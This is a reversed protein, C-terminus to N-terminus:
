HLENIRELAIEINNKYSNKGKTKDGKEEFACLLISIKNGNFTFLIRINKPLKFKMSYINDADKLSEFWDKKLVCNRGTDELHRLRQRFQSSFKNELGSGVLIDKLEDQCTSNIQINKMNFKEPYILEIIEGM